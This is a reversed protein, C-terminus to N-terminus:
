ARRTGWQQKYPWFISPPPPPPLSPTPQPLTLPQHFKIPNRSVWTGKVWGEVSLEYVCSSSVQIPQLTLYNKSSVINTVKIKLAPKNQPSRFATISHKTKTNTKTTRQIMAVMKSKRDLVSLSHLPFNPHTSITVRSPPSPKKQFEVHHGNNASVIWICRFFVSFQLGNQDRSKQMKTTGTSVYKSVLSSRVGSSTFPWAISTTALPTSVTLTSFFSNLSHHLWDTIDDDNCSVSSVMGDDNSDNNNDDKNGNILMIMIVMLLM